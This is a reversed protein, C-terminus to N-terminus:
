LVTKILHDNVLAYGIVAFTIDLSKLSDKRRRYGESSMAIIKNNAAVVRWRWGDSAKYLEVRRESKTIAKPLNKAM